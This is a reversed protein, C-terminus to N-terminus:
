QSGKEIRQQSNGNGPLPHHAKTTDNYTTGIAAVATGLSPKGAPVVPKSLGNSEPNQADGMRSREGVTGNSGPDEQSGLEDRALSSYTTEVLAPFVVTM